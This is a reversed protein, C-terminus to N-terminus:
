LMQWPEPFALRIRDRLIAPCRRRLETVIEEHSYRRSFHTLVILRNEFREAFEAIDDFHIHRYLAAREEHGDAIFSCEIMLVDALYLATNTELIGRDTDGTYFLIPVEVEDAIVTGAARLAALDSGPRGEYEKRLHHRHEVIEIARAPVRHTADHVRASLTRSIRVADGPALGVLQFDYDTGELRSHIAMLAQFDALAEQPVYVHGPALGQMHRQGAYFPIGLSHDLHAHSVFVHGMSLMADPGRGIDLGIGLERIRFWTEHGARTRGEITFAGTPLKFLERDM